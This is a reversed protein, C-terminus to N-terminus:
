LETCVTFTAKTYQEGGGVFGSDYEYEFELVHKVLDYKAYVAESDFWWPNYTDLLIYNDDESKNFGADMKNFKWSGDAQQRLVETSNGSMTGNDFSLSGSCSIEKVSAYSARASIILFILLLYKM